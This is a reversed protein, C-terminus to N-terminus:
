RTEPTDLLDPPIQIKAPDYDGPEWYVHPSHACVLLCLPQKPDHTGIIQDIAVTDLDTWLIHHKGPPMVNTNAHYEFPFSERPGIHTKGAIIVRYGLAHMYHPLTRIGDKILSHNAHAGNRFPFLGTYMASRSPTCTPSACFAADCTLGERALQDLHPTRIDAAGYPGCDRATHDDSIFLVIHPQSTPM